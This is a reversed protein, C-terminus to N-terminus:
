VSRYSIAHRAKISEEVAADTVAGSITRMPHVLPRNSAPRTSAIVPLTAAQTQAIPATAVVPQSQAAQRTSPEVPVIAQTAPLEIM